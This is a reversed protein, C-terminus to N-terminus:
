ARDLLGAVRGLIVDRAASYGDSVMPVDDWREIAATDPLMGTVDCSFSVVHTAAALRDATIPRPVYGRVDVGDAALGAVVHPPVADDPEVGVSEARILMGRSRALRNLHEAAILSKASGHLCVFLVTSSAPADARQM